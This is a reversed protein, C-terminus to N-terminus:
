VNQTSLLTHFAASATLNNRTCYDIFATYDVPKVYIPISAHPQQREYATQMARHFDLDYIESLSWLRLPVTPLLQYYAQRTFPM